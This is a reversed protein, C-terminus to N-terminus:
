GPISAPDNGHSDKEGITGDQNHIVLETKERKSVERASTVAEEKTRHTSLPTDNGSKKVHWGGDGPVVHHSNAM